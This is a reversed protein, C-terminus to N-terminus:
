RPRFVHSRPRFEAGEEHSPVPPRPPVRPRSPAISEWIGLALLGLGIFFVYLILAEESLM